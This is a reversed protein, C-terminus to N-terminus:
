RPAALSLDAARARTAIDPKPLMQRRARPDLELLLMLLYYPLWYPSLAVSALGLRGRSFFWVSLAVGIPIWLWGVIASPALNINGALESGGGLLAGIWGTGYGLAVVIAAHVVFAAAFPIRLGPRRWLLWAAVPVQVPRPVLIILLLYAVGAIRSGRVALVALVVVFTMINGTEVDFWFPYGILVVAILWWDRLAVLAAIHLLRWALLGMPVILEFALAAVPSWRFAYPYALDYLTGAQVRESARIFNVWDFAVGGSLITQITSVSAAISPIAAAVFLAAVPLPPRWAASRRV